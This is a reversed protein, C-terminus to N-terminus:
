ALLFRYKRVDVPFREFNEFTIDSFPLRCETKIRDFITIYNLLIRNDWVLGLRQAMHRIDNKGGEIELFPGFPMTDLCLTTHHLSVTERKKEYIQEQHFGLAELIQQMMSFDNVVVEYETNIKFQAEPENADAKFTLTAKRDKRLRLISRNKRLDRSKNEFRINTEFVPGGCIGGLAIIREQMAPMDDLLFKVEIEQIGMISPYYLFFLPTDVSPYLPDLIGPNVPQRTINAREPTMQVEHSMQGASSM